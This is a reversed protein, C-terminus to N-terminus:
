PQYHPPSSSNELPTKEQDKQAAAAIALCLECPEDGSFTSDLAETLGVEPARDNIM